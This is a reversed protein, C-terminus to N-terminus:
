RELNGQISPVWGGKKKERGEGTKIEKRVSLPCRGNNVQTSNVIEVFVDAAQM